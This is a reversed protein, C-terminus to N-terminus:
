IDQQPNTYNPKFKIKIVDDVNNKDEVEEITPEEFIKRENWFRENKEFYDSDVLDYYSYTFILPQNSTFFIKNDARSLKMKSLKTINDNTLIVSEEEENSLLYSIKMITNTNCLHIYPRIYNIQYINILLTNEENTGPIFFINYDNNKNDM